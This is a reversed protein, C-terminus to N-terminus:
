ARKGGHRVPRTRNYEHKIKILKELDLELAEATDRIRIVADALEIGFGCPKKQGNGDSEFYVFSPHQNNRWEELAEALESVVLMLSTPIRGSPDPWSEWWGKKVALDHIEEQSVYDAEM